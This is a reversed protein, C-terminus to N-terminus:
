EAGDIPDNADVIRAVMHCVSAAGSLAGHRM